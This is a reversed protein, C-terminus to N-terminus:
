DSDAQQVFSISGNAAKTQLVKYDAEVQDTYTLAFEAIAHDFEDTQGLYGAIVAADGSRAHARALVAGMLEAAAVMDAGSWLEADTKVKTDRLQRVYFHRGNEFMTWGLFIDSATQAIRQGAVVRQGHNAYESKGAYPELVSDNAEKIQLLLPDNDAAMFLAVGCLTGVSGIGVVKMAVDELKYRDFLRQKDEQLSARYMPIAKKFDDIFSHDKPHYILPPKEKILFCGDVQETLKPFYYDRITRQIAQQLREERKQALEPNKTNAIIHKWEIRDYWVDLITMHSYKETMKRYSNTLAYAAERAHEAANIERALVAFSTALRKLDWEWPAPLTEDFDNLDFVINREPTAFAGFNNLHCDGCTQVNQDIVPSRSLDMAMLAASGRLFAFPSQLMKGWRIPILEKVRNANFQDLFMIPDSVTRSINLKAHAALPIHMRMFEGRLRRDARFSGTRPHLMAQM